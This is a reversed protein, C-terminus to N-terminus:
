ASSDTNEEKEEGEEKRLWPQTRKHAQTQEQVCELVQKLTWCLKRAQMLSGELSQMKGEILCLQAQERGLEHELIKELRRLRELNEEHTM